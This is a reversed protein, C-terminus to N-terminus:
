SFFKAVDYIARNIDDSSNPVHGVIMFVKALEPKSTIMRRADKLASQLDNLKEFTAARYELAQFLIFDTSEDVAQSQNARRGETQFVIFPSVQNFARLAAAYDKVQYKARGIAIKSKWADVNSATSM